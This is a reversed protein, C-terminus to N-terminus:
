MLGSGKLRVSHSKMTLPEDSSELFGADIPQLLLLSVDLAPPRVLAAGGSTCCMHHAEQFCCPILFNMPFPIYFSLKNFNIKTFLMSIEHLKKCNGVLKSSGGCAFM